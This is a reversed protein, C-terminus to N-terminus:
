RLRFRKMARYTRELLKANQALSVGPPPDFGIMHQSAMTQLEVYELLGHEGHRRGQGSAKMGGMPADNSAYAAGYGENINVTGARLQGAVRRAHVADKSWVSANLGYETDNALRIAEEEGTFPYVSVVPGFTEAAFVQMERIVGSLITPEYFFPGLDPRQRGGTLVEAGLKGAEEVHRRVVDLQRGSVLSGIDYDFGFGTGLRLGRTREVLQNVFSDFVPEAVYIREVSLCLQGATSFCARAAGKAAKKLDADELVVMPNKGGLELTCGILREAAAAAIRRGAVTSGTFSVHDAHDILATGIEEPAGIVIQWLDRPLGSAVLLERAFLATLATQTDPKHVVANGALLAPIVDCAGLSLPYNWPSIVSVVGKPVRLERARTALPIAGKRKRPRLFAPSRRAYYLSLGAIDLTEEFASYRSKGTELQVIDILERNGLVRDHFRLFPKARERPGTAAWQQAQERAHAFVRGLDAPTSAPMTAMPAGSFPAATTVPAGSGTLRGLLRSITAGIHAPQDM